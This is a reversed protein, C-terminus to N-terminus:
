EHNLRFTVPLVMRVNVLVGHQMGPKWKPMLGIVRLAEKDLSAGASTIIELNTVAGNTDIVFRVFATGEQGMKQAAGPYRLTKSLYRYLAKLGGDFEPMVEAHDLIKPTEVITTTVTVPVVGVNDSSIVTVTEGNSEGTSRSVDQNEVPPTDTVEHTVVHTPIGDIKKLTRKIEPEHKEPIIKPKGSLDYPVPPEKILPEVMEPKIMIAIQICSLVIGVFLFSGASGKAMSSFYEKRIIYAGYSKNRNDFVVEDGPHVIINETSM